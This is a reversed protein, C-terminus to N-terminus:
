AVLPRRHRHQVVSSERLSIDYEYFAIRQRAVAIGSITRPVTLLTRPRVTLEEEMSSRDVDRHPTAGSQMAAIGSVAILASGILMSCASRASCASMPASGRRPRCFVAVGRKWHWEEPALMTLESSAAAQCIVPSSSSSRRQCYRRVGGPAQSARRASIESDPPPPVFRNRGTGVGPARACWRSSTACDQQRRPDRHRPGVLRVRRPRHHRNRRAPRQPVGTARPGRTRASPGRSIGATGGLRRSSGGTPRRLLPGRDAGSRPPSDGDARDPRRRLLRVGLSPRVGRARQQHDHCAVGQSWTRRM